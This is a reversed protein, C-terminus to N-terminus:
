LWKISRAAQRIAPLPDIINPMPPEFGGCMCDPQPFLSACLDNDRWHTPCRERIQNLFEYDTNKLQDQIAEFAQAQFSKVIHNRYFISFYVELLSDKARADNHRTRWILRRMDPATPRSYNQVYDPPIVNPYYHAHVYNTDNAKLISGLGLTFVVIAAFGAFIIFLYKSMNYNYLM